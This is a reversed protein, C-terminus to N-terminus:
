SSVSIAGSVKLTVNITIKDDLPVDLPLDTVYAAFELTTAASDPLVIQYNVSTDTDFDDKMDEYGQHTFNMVLSVEGPDRFASIFERYGGASDLSTVDIFARSMSPGSISNVEAVATFSENSTGDGRKFSAGVGSIANTTM